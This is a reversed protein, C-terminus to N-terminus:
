SNIQYSKIFKDNTVQSKVFHGLTKFKVWNQLLWRRSKMRIYM